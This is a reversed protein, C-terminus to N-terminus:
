FDEHVVKIISHLDRQSHMFGLSTKCLLECLRQEGHFFLSISTLCFQGRIRLLIAYKSTHIAALTRVMNLFYYHYLVMFNATNIKPIRRGTKQMAKGSFFIEFSSKFLPATAKSPKHANSQCSSCVSILAGIRSPKLTGPKHCLCPEYAGWPNAVM